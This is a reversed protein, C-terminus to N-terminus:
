TGEKDRQTIFIRLEQLTLEVKIEPDQVNWTKLIYKNRTIPLRKYGNRKLLKMKYYKTKKMNQNNM